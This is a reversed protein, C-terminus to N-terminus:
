LISLFDHPNVKFFSTGFVNINIGRNHVRPFACKLSDPFFSPMRLIVEALKNLGTTPPINYSPSQKIQRLLDEARMLAKPNSKLLSKARNAQREALRYDENLLAEEALALAAEGLKGSKGYATGLLRWAM